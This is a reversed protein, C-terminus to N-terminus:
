CRRHEDMVDKDRKSESITPWGARFCLCNIESDLRRLFTASPANIAPLLTLLTIKSPFRPLSGSTFYVGLPAGTAFSVSAVFSRYLSLPPSHCSRVSHCLM